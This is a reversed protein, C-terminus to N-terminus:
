GDKVVKHDNLIIFDQVGERGDQFEVFLQSSLVDIVIATIGDVQIRDGPAYKVQSKAM